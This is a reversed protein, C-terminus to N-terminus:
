LREIITANAMGSGECMAQLGFRGGTAELHHLLTTLLRTGSAGLPHGLAIAGGRPNLKEGPMGLERQWALPVSAFAENVEAADIDDITLGARELAARAAAIPGSLMLVPDDGVVTMSVIRARPRLGLEAAARESTVLVASSGDALQSSNGATVGWTIEPFRSGDAENRFITALGALREADTGERITEDTAFTAGTGDMVDIPVIEAAFHGDARAAAARAHSEVAYADMEDRSIGWRAAVLEAAIGQSTLGPAYREQVSPGFVDADGRASGMPVRSMSEVGGALVVDHCGSMISQAAFHVAQQSSGCRRDITTAPVHAPYGAGLWAIRGPCAAQEGGQSVCGIMVDEVRGPDIGSREVLGQITQRLLEVAHVGSLGGGPKGKGTGTRVAEVIVANEM